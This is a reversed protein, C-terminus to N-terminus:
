HSRRDIGSAEGNTTIQGLALRESLDQVESLKMKPLSKRVELLSEGYKQPDRNDKM